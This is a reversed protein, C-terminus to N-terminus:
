DNDLHTVCTNLKSASEMELSDLSYTPSWILLIVHRSIVQDSGLSMVEDGCLWRPLSFGRALPVIHCTEVQKM